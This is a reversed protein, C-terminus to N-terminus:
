KIYEKFFYDEATPIELSREYNDKIATLKSYYLEPTIEDINFEELKIIGDENFFKGIHPSGWFIPITGMAFCDTIKECFINPYNDNEMAISFMYDKLGDEKKQLPSFGVGYHDLKNKYKQIIEQRYNHGPCMRKNSAIMSILKTKSHVGVDGVWPVANPIVFKFKDSLNLLREDHTFIFEFNNDIYKINNKVWEIVDPIIASSELLWAYNKKNKNVKRDIISHDIHVSIPATEGVKVWEILKPISYGSSSDAHHFGGGILNLKQRM